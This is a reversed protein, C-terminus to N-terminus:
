PAKVKWLQVLIKSWFECLDYTKFMLFLGFILVIPMKSFPQNEVKLPFFTQEIQDLPIAAKLWFASGSQCNEMKESFIPFPRIKLMKSKSSKKIMEKIM